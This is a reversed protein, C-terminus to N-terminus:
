TEIKPKGNGNDGEIIRKPESLELKFQEYSFEDETKIINEKDQNENSIIGSDMLANISLPDAKVTLSQQRADVNINMTDSYLGSLKAFIEAAKMNHSETGSMALKWMRDVYVLKKSEFHPDDELIKKTIADAFWEKFGKFERFWRFIVQDSIVRAKGTIEAQKNIYKVLNYPFPPMGTKLLTIAIELLVIQKITPEYTKDKVKLKNSM